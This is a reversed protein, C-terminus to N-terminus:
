EQGEAKAIAECIIRYTEKECAEEKCIKLAELLEPASAILRANGEPENSYNDIHMIIGFGKAEVRCYRYDDSDNHLKWPGKTYESM